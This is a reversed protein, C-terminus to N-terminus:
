YPYGGEEWPKRLGWDDAIIKYCNYGSQDAAGISGHWGSGTCYFGKIGPFKYGALEPIPRFSGIQSAVWDIVYWAGTPAMNKLRTITYPSSVAYGIVTDWSINTTYKSMTDIMARAIVKHHELWWREDHVWAPCDYQEILLRFKGEPATKTEGWSQIVALNLDEGPYPPSEHLFRRRVDERLLREIDRSGPCVWYGTDIPLGMVDSAKYHPWEHLAFWYWNILSIDRVITNVKRRIIPSVRDGGILDFVVQHPSLSSVVLKSAGIETGDKLRIGKATDNEIIVKEVESNTFYEGGNEKIVRQAAHAANHTGGEIWGMMDAWMALGITGAILGMGRDEVPIGSSYLARLFLIQNEVAEFLVEFVQRPTMYMFQPDVVELVEPNQMMRGFVAEPAGFPLSPTALYELVAPRIHKVYVPWFKLWFEGDRPSFRSMVEATKEQTPDATKTFTASATDDENFLTIVGMGPADVTKGGYEVFEPFDRETTGHWLEPGHFHSHVDAIFGPAANEISEWGGGLENRAEFIGVKMGGYKTLYMGMILGKNGGGVIVADYTADPM